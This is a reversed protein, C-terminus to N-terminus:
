HPAGLADDGWGLSCREGHLLAKGLRGAPYQRDWLGGVIAEAAPAVGLGLCGPLHAKPDARRVDEIETLPLGVLVERDQQLREGPHSAGMGVALQDDGSVVRAM